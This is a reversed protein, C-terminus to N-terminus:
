RGGKVAMVFSQRLGRSLGAGSGKRAMSKQKKDQERKTNTELKRLAASRKRRVDDDRVLDQLSDFSISHAVCNCGCGTECLMSFEPGIIDLSNAMACSAHTAHGCEICMKYLGQIPEWCVSCQIRTAYRLCSVCRDRLRKGSIQTKAEAYSAGSGCDRCVISVQLAEDKALSTKRGLLGSSSNNKFKMARGDDSMSAPWEDAWYSRLGNFKLLECRQMTLGWVSLLHAYARRYSQYKAVKHPDLLPASVTAEEDFCNQNKLSIAINCNKGAARTKRTRAFTFNEMGESESDLSNQSYQTFFGSRSRVSNNANQVRQTRVSSTDTSIKTNFITNRGWTVGGSPASTSLEDDAEVIRNPDPPSTSASMNLPPHLNAASRRYRRQRQEPSNAMSHAASHASRRLSSPPSLGTSIPTLCEDPLSNNTSLENASDLSGYKNSNSNYSGSTTPRPVKAHRVSCAAVFSPFYDLSFAPSKMSLPLDQCTHAM